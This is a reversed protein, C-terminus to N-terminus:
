MNEVYSELTSLFGEPRCEEVHNINWLGSSRIEEADSEAGLWSDKRPDIPDRHYNSLLAISGREVTARQSEPGPEDDVEIWLLPQERVYASVRKELDYEADRTAKPASSGVGWEPYEGDLNDRNVMAEGVRRRFVSGRHNGGNPHAGSLTGRHARLRNWLSTGSGASVAHTGVRSVRLQDSTERRENPAFFFYVGRQPWEMRGTADDLTRYGGIRNRLDDLLCYFENLDGRRGM